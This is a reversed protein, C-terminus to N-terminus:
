SGHDHTPASFESSRVPFFIVWSRQGECLELTPIWSYVGVLHHLNAWRGGWFVCLEPLNSQRRGRQGDGVMVASFSSSEQRGFFVGHRLNWPLPDVSSVSPIQFCPLKSPHDDPCIQLFKAHLIMPGQYPQIYLFPFLSVCWVAM